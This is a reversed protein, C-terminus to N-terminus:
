VIIGHSRFEKLLDHWQLSCAGGVNTSLTAHRLHVLPVHNSHMMAASPIEAIVL